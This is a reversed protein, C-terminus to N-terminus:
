YKCAFGGTLFRPPANKFGAERKEKRKKEPMDGESKKTGKKEATKKGQTRDTRMKWEKPNYMNIM